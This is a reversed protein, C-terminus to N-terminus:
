FSVCSKRTVRMVSEQRFRAKYERTITDIAAESAATDAHVIDLVHSPERVIASEKSKWQGSADWTTLGDPFRPTVATALFDAWEASSVVGGPTQTGLYLVDHTMAEQGPGCDPGPVSACGALLLSVLVVGRVIM